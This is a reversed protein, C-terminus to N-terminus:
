NYMEKVSSFIFFLSELSNHIRWIFLSFIFILLFCGLWIFLLCFFSYTTSVRTGQTRTVLTKGVNRVSFISPAKIDYWDKKAFPDARYIISHIRHFISHLFSFVKVLKFSLPLTSSDFKRRRRAGRKERLFERIRGSWIFLFFIHAIIFLFVLLTIRLFFLFIPVSSNLVWCGNNRSAFAGESLPKRSTTIM